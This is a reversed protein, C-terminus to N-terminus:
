SIRWVIEDLTDNHYDGADKMEEIVDLLNNIADQYTGEFKSM